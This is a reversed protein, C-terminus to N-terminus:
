KRRLVRSEVEDQRQRAGTCERRERELGKPIRFYVTQRQYVWAIAEIAEDVEIEGRSAAGILRRLVLLFEDCRAL